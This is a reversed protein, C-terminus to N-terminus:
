RYRAIDRNHAAYNSNVRFEGKLGHLFYLAREGNVLRRANLVSLLAAQGPNNIPGQPLGPRTYTNYPTDKQFDGAFRDLEPLDKGLGYAVTPDSGLAMRDDLRNLFVGAIAPMEEDNAAEAQVMSAVTVWGYVDLGLKKAAEVHEPTFEEAMRQVLARVMEENTAEPRFPYTAPFLFGELNGKAYESLSADKLTALLTSADGLKAKAFIEPLDKLRKGEPITVLMIRPRGPRALSDAVEFADMRGNLDYLGEKLGTATGRFRMVARLADASKVIKKAQLQDAVAPLTTGPKVELEFKGGGAPRTMDYAYYGLGGAAVVLLLVFVLVLRVFIKM